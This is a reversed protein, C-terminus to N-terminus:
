RHDEWETTILRLTRDSILVVVVGATRGNSLRKVMKFKWEGSKEGPLPPEDVDGQRLIRLVDADFIGRENMRERIHASWRINGSDESLTRARAQAVAATLRFRAVSRDESEGM